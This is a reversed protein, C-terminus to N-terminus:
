GARISTQISSSVPPTRECALNAVPQSSRCRHNIRGLLSFSDAVVANVLEDCAAAHRGDETSHIDRGPRPRSLPEGDPVRIRRATRRDNGGRLPCRCFISDDPRPSPGARRHHAFPRTHMMMSHTSPIGNARLIESLPPQRWFPSQADRNPNAFREVVNVFMSDHMASRFGSLIRISASSLM